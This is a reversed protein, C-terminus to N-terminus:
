VRETGLGFYRISASWCHPCTRPAPQRHGCYHCLLATETAHYTLPVECRRCRAVYGCERCLVMSAMGRRNLFLIAQEGAGLTEGLATQLAQSLIRTHGARLEARLDVIQVTPLHSAVGEAGSPARALLEVLRYDGEDAHWRSEISPTASGLVVT